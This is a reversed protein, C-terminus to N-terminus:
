AQGKVSRVFGRFERDRERVWGRLLGGSDPVGAKRLFAMAVDWDHIAGLADQWEQLRAVDPAGGDSSLELTYRLKKSDIRLKHLEELRAPDATVVPLMEDIDKSLRGVVREFRKQLGSRTVGKSGVDPPRLRRVSEAGEVADKVLKRRRKDIRVLLEARAPGTYRSVKARTVDMDRVKASRKMVRRHSRLMERMEPGRRVSKPLIDVRAELRRIATRADHVAEADPRKVLADLRQSLSEGAEAYGELFAGKEM